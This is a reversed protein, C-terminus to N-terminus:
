RRAFTTTRRSESKTRFCTGKLAPHVFVENMSAKMALTRRRRRLFCTCEEEDKRRVAKRNIKRLIFGVEHSKEIKAL